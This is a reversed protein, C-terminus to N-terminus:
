LFDELANDLTRGERLPKADGAPALGIRNHWVVKMGANTAGQVDGASGAVFLVDCAELDMATLLAQYAKEVPKYFGSEEATMVADWGANEGGQWVRKAAAHGLEKSCNTATALQYGRSRLRRLVDPVEPWPALKEWDRLLNDAASEPLGADGASSRVLNEYPVYIGAGFTIELYRKRWRHGEATTGSPTSADWLSWSDLLATLLDFIIAKPRWPQAEPDHTTSM